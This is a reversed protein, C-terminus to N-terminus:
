WASWFKKCPMMRSEGLEQKAAFWFSHLLFFTRENTSAKTSSGNRLKTYFHNYDGSVCDAIYSNHIKGHVTLGIDEM